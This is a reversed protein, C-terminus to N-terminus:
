ALALGYKKMKNHLTTRSIGLRQAARARNQGCDSLVRRMLDREAAERQCRLAPGAPALPKTQVITQKGVGEPFHSPLLVEGRCLLVAQRLVNDLERLNGPWSHSRLLALAEPAIDRPEKGFQVAYRAALGHALPEIDEIRQRLPPLHFPLVHLRYFLDSRFTGSKVLADLDANSAALIRCTKQRTDNSGVPEYEGSDLVRLLTAQQVMSLTDIEDLLLTGRGAAALKGARSRDAGTFAGRVHGFLESEVLHPPLAGCPVTVFPESRRASCDHLIRALWTKGAGTEGILLIPIDHEAALALRELWALLSPTQALRQQLVAFASDPTAAQPASCLIRSPAIM